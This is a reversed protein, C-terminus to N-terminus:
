TGAPPPPLPDVQPAPPMDPVATNDKVGAEVDDAVKSLDDAVADIATQVATTDAGAKLDALQQWLDALKAAAQKNQDRMATLAALAATDVAKLRAVVALLKTTDLMIIEQNRIVLDLKRALVTAWPPVEAAAHRHRHRFIAFLSM